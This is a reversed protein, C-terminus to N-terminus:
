FITKHNDKAYELNAGYSFDIPLPAMRTSSAFSRLMEIWREGPQEFCFCYRWMLWDCLKYAKETRDPLEDPYDGATYEVAGTRSFYGPAFQAVRVGRLMADVSFTSNYVFVFKCNKLCSFDTIAIRSGHEECIRQAYQFQDSGCLPHQKLLLNKGYKKAAGEVFRWFDWCDGVSNISRDNPVQLPIVIGDWTSTDEGWRDTGNQRYKSQPNDASLVIDSASRPAKFWEIEGLIEPQSLCSHQYLGLSDIHMAKWFFGTEIVSSRGTRGKSKFAWELAWGGEAPPSDTVVFGEGAQAIANALSPLYDKELLAQCLYIPRKDFARLLVAKAKIEPKPIVAKILGM